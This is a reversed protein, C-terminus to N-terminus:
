SRAPKPTSRPSSAPMIPACRPTNPRTARWPSRRRRRRSRRRRRRSRTSRRTSSPRASSTSTSCRTTAITNPSRWIATRAAGFSLTAQASAVQLKLDLPDLEALAQGAEVHAASMSWARASRAPSASASSARTVRMCTAPISRPMCRRRRRASPRGPRLAAGRARRCPQQLRVSQVLRPWCVMRPPLLKAIHISASM